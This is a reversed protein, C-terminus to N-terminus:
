PVMARMRAVIDQLERDDAAGWLAIVPRAWRHATAEDRAHTALDARLAMARVLAAAQDVNDLLGTGLTALADLPRSILVTAAGTDGIALLVRAELYTGSIAVDGPRLDSRAAHMTDLTARITATDRHDLAWVLRGSREGPTGRRPSRARLLPLSWETPHDLLAHRMSERRQPEISADILLRVRHALVTVSEAPAGLAAYGRLAFAARALSLPHVGVQRGDIELTLDPAAHALLQATRHARGTLAALGALQEAAGSNPNTGADLASDALRRAGAFDELKTLVRVEAMALRLQQGSETAAVRARRVTALASRESPRTDTLDGTGELLLALAENAEASNPFARVWEAVIDRLIARNHAVAATTTTPTAEPKAALVDNWPYPVFALTDRELGPFAAFWQTDPALAFGGRFQNTETFFILDSLRTLQGFARHAAPILQLARRYAQVAAHYSSRFRWGSPSAPDREVTRDKSQCEGLGFWAVFDTSDRVVLARYTRCADPFREDALSALARALAGERAALRDASEAAALAAGRWEAAPRGEWARTQALWLSAQAYAPDLQLARTFADEATPLDWRARAEHGKEYAQLAAFVRTGTATSSRVGGVLLSDALEAFKAAVRPDDPILRVVHERVPTGGSRVDYLTARVYITDAFEAVEGWVLRGAAFQRAVALADSLSSPKPLGRLMFDHVQLDNVLPIDEWHRLADYLMLECQDGNLLKPAAGGRHGFPVVVYLSADLNAAGLRPLFMAGLTVLVAAGVALLARRRRLMRRLWRASSATTQPPGLALAFESATAFRESPRKALAVELAYAVDLPIEEREETIPPARGTPTRRASPTHGVLMEYLVCGLSYIDSRGDLDEGSAQEPSMYDVTGVVIGSGTMRAENAASIARAIGFDSVVPHGAELLINEPKIDRHVLNRTHAYALADAVDRTITVADAVPLRGERSLRHRLSEGEVYPMTYFLLGDAVGSDFLPLIHPHTLGAAVKIERLFRDTGLAAALDPRLVKLAVWRDNRLDRALYVTSMGGRGLVRELTYRGGLADGLRSQLDDV